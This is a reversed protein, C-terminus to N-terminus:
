DSVGDLLPALVKVYIALREAVEGAFDPDTMDEADIVESLRRWTRSNPGLAKGGDAGPLKKSWIRRSNELHDLLFDNRESTTAELHLGIEIVSRGKPAWRKSIQQAEFHFAPEHYWLKILSGSRRSEFDRLAPGLLGRLEDDIQDFFPRSM